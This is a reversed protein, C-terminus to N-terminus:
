ACLRDESPGADHRPALALRGDERECRFAWGDGVEPVGEGGLGLVAETPGWIGAQHVGRVAALEAELKRIRDSDRRAQRELRHARIALGYVTEGIRGVPSFSESWGDAFDMRAVPVARFRGTRLAMRRFSIRATEWEPANGADMWEAPKRRRRQRRAAM